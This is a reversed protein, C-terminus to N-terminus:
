HWVLSRIRLVMMLCLVVTVSVTWYTVLANNFHAPCTARIFSLPHVMLLVSHCTFPTPDTPLGLRPQLSSMRPCCPTTGALITFSLCCIPPSQRLAVDQQPFVFGLISCFLLYSMLFSCWMSGWIAREPLVESQAESLESLYYFLLYSMLFSLRMSGWIAWEPLVESQAESLESLYYFLLYSMVFSFRMSGWIAWEFLVERQAESLESLYFSVNRSMLAAGWM